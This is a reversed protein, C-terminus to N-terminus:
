ELGDHLVVPLRHVTRRPEAVVRLAHWRGFGDRHAPLVPNAAVAALATGWSGMGIVALRTYPEARRPSMGAARSPPIDFTLGDM